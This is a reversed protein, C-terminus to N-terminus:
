PLTFLQALRYMISVLLHLVFCHFSSGSQFLRRALRMSYVWGSAQKSAPQPQQSTNNPHDNCHPDIGTNVGREVKLVNSVGSLLATAQAVLTQAVMSSVGPCIPASGMKAVTSRDDAVDVKQSDTAISIEDLSMNM